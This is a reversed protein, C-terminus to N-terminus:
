KSVIYYFLASVNATKCARFDRCFINIYLKLTFKPAPGLTSPIYNFTPQMTEHM